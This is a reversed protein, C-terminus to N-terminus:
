YISHGTKLSILDLTKGLETIDIEFGKATPSGVVFGYSLDIGDTLVKYWSNFRDPPQLALVTGQGKVSLLGPVLQSGEVGAVIEAGLSKSILETASANQPDLIIFGRSSLFEEVESENVLIRADGTQGRRFFAGPLDQAPFIEKLKSRLQEYRRGKDENWSIDNILILEDFRARQLQRPYLDFFGRYEPEHDYPKHQAVIAEGLHKAAITLPLEDQLFHGFYRRSIYTSSLVASEIKEHDEPIILSEKGPFQPIKRAGKYLFGDALYASKLLHATTPRWEKWVGTVREYEQKFNNTPTSTVRDLQNELYIASRTKSKEPSPAIDWSKVSIEEYSPNNWFRLMRRVRRRLPILKFM